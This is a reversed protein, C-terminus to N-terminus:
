GKLDPPMGAAKPWPDATVKAHVILREYNDWKPNCTTITLMADKPKAGPEGPVPAVVEVSNPLVIKTETVVYEYFNTRDEVYIKDGPQMKDLDWFVRKMRHGAMAFNGVKGPMASEPYHGPATKIDGPKVGEVVVWQLDLKPIYLRAIADGPLPKAKPNAKAGDGWTREIRDDLANQAADVQLAKGWVEYGAFLLVVLGFTILLEGFGRIAARVGSMADRRRPPPPEDFEEPTRAARRRRDLEADWDVDYDREPAGEDHHGNGYGRQDTGYGDQDPHYSDQDSYGGHVPPADWEADTRPRGYVTGSTRASPSGYPPSAPSDDAAHRGAGLPYDEGDDGEDPPTYHSRYVAM